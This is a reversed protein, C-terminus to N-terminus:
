EGIVPEFQEVPRPVLHPTALLLRVCSNWRLIADDNGEPRLTEAKEYCAMADRVWDYAMHGAGPTHRDLQAKARREFIIGGYYAREYASTFLPLCERALATLRASEAGFQDTRALLLIRLARQHGPETQLIDLCISEAAWPENLLRYHEAKDLAGPIAAESLSKLTFM